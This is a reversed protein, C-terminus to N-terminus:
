RRTQVASFTHSLMEAFDDVAPMTSSQQPAMQCARLTKWDKTFGRCLTAVEM